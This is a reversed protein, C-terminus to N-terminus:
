KIYGLEILKRQVIKRLKGTIVVDFTDPGITFHKDIKDQWQEPIAMDPEALLIKDAWECLLALTEPTNVDIGVSLADHNYNLLAKTFVSRKNGQNCVCLIKM